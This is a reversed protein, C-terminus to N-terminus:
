KSRKCMVSVDDFANRFGTKGQRETKGITAFTIYYPNKLPLGTSQWNLM